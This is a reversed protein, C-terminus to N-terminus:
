ISGGLSVGFYSLRAFLFSLVMFWISITKPLKM